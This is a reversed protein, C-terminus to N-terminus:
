SFTVTCLGHRMFRSLHSRNVVLPFPPVPSIPLLMMDPMLRLKSNPPGLELTRLGPFRSCRIRTQRAQGGSSICASLTAGLLLFRISHEDYASAMSFTEKGVREVAEVTVYRSLYPGGRAAFHTRVVKEQRM